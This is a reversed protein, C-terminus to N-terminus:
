FLGKLTSLIGKKENSQQKHSSSAQPQVAVLQQLKVEYMNDGAAFRGDAPFSNEIVHYGQDALSALERELQYPIKQGTVGTLTKDILVDDNCTVKVQAKAPNAQYQITVESDHSNVTLQEAPVSSITYGKLPTPIYEPLATTQWETWHDSNTVVDHEGFRKVAGRQTVVQTVNDPLVVNITRQVQHEDQLPKAQHALYVYYRQQDSGAFYEGSTAGQDAKILRYGAAQYDWLQNHYQKGQRVTLQQTQENLLQNNTTDFYYITVNQVTPQSAVIKVVYHQEGATFRVNLPLTEKAATYGQAQLTTLETEIPQKIEEGVLGTLKKSTITSNTQSDVFDITVTTSEPQYEITVEKDTTKLTIPLEAVQGITYGAIPTPTFAPLTTSTWDQWMKEKTVQDYSGQRQITGQQSVVQVIEKAMLVTITRKVTHKQVIQQQQHTLYVYYNAAPQGGVFNGTKAGLDASVIQYGDDPGWLQNQYTTGGNGTFSQTREALLEGDEPKLTVHQNYDLPLKIYYINITQKNEVVQVQVNQTILMDMNESGNLYYGIKVSYSGAVDLNLDTDDIIFVQDKAVPYTRNQPTVGEVKVVSSQCNWRDLTGAKVRTDATKLVQHVQVVPRGLNGGALIGKDKPSQGSRDVNVTYGYESIVRQVKLLDFTFKGGQWLVKENENNSNNFNDIQVSTSSLTPMVDTLKNVLQYQGNSQLEVASYRIEDEDAISLLPQSVYFNLRSSVRDDTELDYLAYENLSCLTRLDSKGEILKFPFDIHYSSHPELVGFVMVAIVKDWSFDKRQKLTDVTSYEGDHGEYSYTIDFGPVVENDEDKFTLGDFENVRSGDLVVKDKAVDHNEFQPLTYVIEVSKSQDATNQLQGYGVFDSQTQSNIISIPTSLQPRSVNSTSTTHSLKNTAQLFTGHQLGNFDINLASNSLSPNNYIAPLAENLKERHMSLQKENESSQDELQSVKNFAVNNSASLSSVGDIAETQDLDALDDRMLERPELM